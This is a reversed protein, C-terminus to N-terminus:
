AQSARSTHPGVGAVLVAGLDALHRTALPGAVAQEVAVVTIGELPQEGTM